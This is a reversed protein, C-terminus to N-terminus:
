LDNVNIYNKNETDFCKFLSWLREKNLYTKNNLLAAM